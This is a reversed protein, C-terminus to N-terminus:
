GRGVHARTLRGAGEGLDKWSATVDFVAVASTPFGELAEAADADAEGDDLLYAVAASTPNHGIFMVTEAEEPVVRMAMLVDDPGAEYLDWTVDVTPDGGVQELVEAWTEQTRDAASVLVHDPLVGAEALFRGADAADRHGRDSLRRAADREGYQQAKAHRM